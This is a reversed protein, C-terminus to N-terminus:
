AVVESVAKHIGINLFGSGDVILVEGDIVVFDNISMSTHSVGLSRIKQQGEPTGLPNFDLNFLAFLKEANEDKAVDSKVQVEGVKAFNELGTADLMEVTAKADTFFTGSPSEEFAKRTFYYVEAKVNIGNEHKEM